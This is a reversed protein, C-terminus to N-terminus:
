CMPPTEPYGELQQAIEAHLQRRVNPEISNYISERYLDHRWVLVGCLANEVEKARLLWGIGQLQKHM